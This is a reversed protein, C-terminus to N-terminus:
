GSRVRQVWRQCVVATQWWKCIYIPHRRARCHQCTVRVKIGHGHLQTRPLCTPLIAWALKCLGCIGENKRAMHKLARLKSRILNWLGAKKFQVLEVKLIDALELLASTNELYGAAKVLGYLERHTVSMLWTSYNVLLRNHLHCQTYHCELLLFFNWKWFKYCM